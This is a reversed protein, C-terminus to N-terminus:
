DTLAINIISSLNIDIEKHRIIFEEYGSGLLAANIEIIEQVYVGSLFSNVMEIRKITSPHTHCDPNNFAIYNLYLNSANNIYQAAFLDAFYEM